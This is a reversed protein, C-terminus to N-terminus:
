VAVHGCFAHAQVDAPVASRAAVKAAAAQKRQARATASANGNVASTDIGFLGTAWAVADANQDLVTRNVNLLTDCAIHYCKDYAEGAVGGFKAAQEPTKIGEAGTFLGGSPIAAAIFPGYDSRGTFDSGEFPLGRSTFYAEYVDEIQASGTPGAPAGVNDSNDGDYIFRGFNPSGIMDYNLYMAIDLQQEFNLQSVYYTSGVLGVEEAGWWAIRIKNKPKYKTLQIALELLAATGTGNDNIGPGPVVSDLHAGTMVVNNAQGGPTEVIVNRTPRREKLVRLELKVRVAGAAALAEGESRRLGATPLIGSAADTLRGNLPENADPTNNYMLVGVAGAANANDHKQQFPCSGRQILVITGRNAASFDTAECGPTADTALNAVTTLPAEIGGVPTNGSYLMVIPNLPLTANGVVSASQALTQTFDFTFEQLQVTYGAAKLRDAVYNASKDFGPTGSARTGGNQDAIRQLAILHRNINNVTVDRVLKKALQAPDPAGAAAPSAAVVAGVLLVATGLAILQARRQAV